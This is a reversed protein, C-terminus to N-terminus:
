LIDLFVEEETAERYEEMVSKNFGHDLPWTVFPRDIVHAVTMEDDVVLIQPMRKHIYYRM